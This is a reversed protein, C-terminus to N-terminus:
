KGSETYQALSADIASPALVEDLVGLACGMIGARDDLSSAVLRLNRAALPTSRRHVVELVGAFLHEHAHAMDGGIVIVAPNFLNVAGALVEGLRRGAARILRVADRQGARALEVVDRSHAASLGLARLQGALASGSALAEVCGVNGCHCVEGSHDSVQIHGVDGATGQAGRHVRGSAIIGCGIGTGVKVFLLDEVQDRWVAGYEGLAMLNVDNDVLVPVPFRPHVREPIRIGDWGPMIPPSVARGEDFEVPGPVGIGVGRVEARTCGAGQLLEDFRDLMWPLVEDPGRAIALEAGQEALVEGALDTVALRCHTAGLDAALVVGGRANFALRMPPRGGTSPGEGSETLLKHAILAEVRQSITSRALGTARALDARSMARGERVLQLLEGTTAPSPSSVHRTSTKVRPLISVGPKM